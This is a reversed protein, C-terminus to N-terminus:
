SSPNRRRLAWLPDWGKKESLSLSVPYLTLPLLSTLVVTVSIVMGASYSPFGTIAIEAFAKLPKVAKVLIVIGSLTVLIKLLAKSFQRAKVLTVIGSLTVLRPLVEKLFQVAREDTTMPEPILVMLSFAKSPQLASVETVKGEPSSSIPLM